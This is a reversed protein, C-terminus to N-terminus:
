RHHDATRPSSEIRALLEDDLREEDTDYDGADAPDPDPFLAALVRRAGLADCLGVTVARGTLTDVYTVQNGAPGPEDGFRRPLATKRVASLMVDRLGTIEGLLEPNMREDAATHQEAAARRCGACHVSYRDHKGCSLGSV